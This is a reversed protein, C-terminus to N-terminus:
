DIAAGCETILLCFVHRVIERDRETPESSEEAAAALIGLYAFLTVIDELNSESELCGMASRDTEVQERCRQTRGHDEGLQKTYIPIAIDLIEIATDLKNQSRLAKAYWELTLASAYHEKAEDGIESVIVKLALICYEIASDSDNQALYSDVIWTTVDGSLLFFTRNNCYITQAKRFYKIADCYNEKGHYVRGFVIYAGALDSSHENRESMSRTGRNLWAIAEDFEKQACYAEGILSCLQTELIEGTEMAGDSVAQPKLYSLGEKLVGIATENDGRRLLAWGLDRFTTVLSHANLYKMSNEGAGLALGFQVIAEDFRSLISLSIGYVSCLIYKSIEKIYRNSSKRFCFAEAYRRLSPHIQDDDLDDLLNQLIIVANEMWETSDTLNHTRQHYSGMVYNIFAIGFDKTNNSSDLHALNVAHEVTQLAGPIDGRDLKIFGLDVNTIIKDHTYWKSGQRTSFKLAKEFWFQSEELQARNGYCRALCVCVDAVKSHNAADYIRFADTFLEIAEGVNVFDGTYDALEYYIGALALSQTMGYRKSLEICCLAHPKILECTQDYRLADNHFVTQLLKITKGIWYTSKKEGPTLQRMMRLHTGLDGHGDIADRVTSQVVKPISLARESSLEVLSSNLLPQLASEHQPEDKWLLESINESDLYSLLCLLRVSEIALSQFVLSVAAAIQIYSRDESVSQYAIKRTDYRDTFESISLGSENLLRAVHVITRPLGGLEGLLRTADDFDVDRDLVKNLLQRREDVDLEDLHKDYTWLVNSCETETIILVHRRGDRRPLLDDVIQPHELSDLVLLWNENEDLAQLVKKQVFQPQRETEDILNLAVAISHYGAHLVVKSTAKVWFIGRYQRKERAELVYKAALQTKGSGSPGHLAVRQHRQLLEM